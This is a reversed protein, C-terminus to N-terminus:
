RLLGTLKGTYAPTAYPDHRKHFDKSQHFEVRLAWEISRIGSYSYESFRSIMTNVANCCRSVQRSITANLHDLFLSLLFKYFFVKM